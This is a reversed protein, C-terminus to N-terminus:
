RKPNGGHNDVIIVEPEWALLQEKTIEPFQGGGEPGVLRGGCLELVYKSTTITWTALINTGWSNGWYVVPREDEPIDATRSRIFEVTDDLYEEWRAYREPSDGGLVDAVFSFQDRTDQLAEELSNPPESSGGMIVIVPIGANEFKVLEQEINWYIVLDVEQDLFEEVNVPTRPGVDHIVPYNVIDPNTLQAVPYATSHDDRVIGIQDKGGLAFLMEYSPGQMTAIRQPNAPITVTRGARDVIERTAPAAEEEESADERTTAPASEEAPAPPTTEEVPAACGWIGALMAIAIMLCIFLQANRRM